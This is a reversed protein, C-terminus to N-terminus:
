NNIFHNYGLRQGTEVPQAQAGSDPPLTQFKISAGRKYYYEEELGTGLGSDPPGQLMPQCNKM